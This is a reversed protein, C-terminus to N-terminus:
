RAGHRRPVRRAADRTHALPPLPLLPSPLLGCLPSSCRSYLLRLDSDPTNIIPLPSTATNVILQVDRTTGIVLWSYVCAAVLGVFIKRAASSIAAVQDLAPFKAIQDPLKAGTLDAGALDEPLLGKVKTLDQDKLDADRLDERRLASRKRRVATKAPVGPREIAEPSHFAAPAEELGKPPAAETKENM